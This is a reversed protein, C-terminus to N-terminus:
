DYNKVLQDVVWKQKADLGPIKEAAKKAQQQLTKSQRLVAQKFPEWENKLDSKYQWKSAKQYFNHILIQLVMWYFSKYKKGEEVQTKLEEYYYPLTDINESLLYYKLRDFQLKREAQKLFHSLFLHRELKVLANFNAAMENLLSIQELREEDVVGSEDTSKEALQRTLGETKMDDSLYSWYKIITAADLKFDLPKSEINLQHPYYYHTVEKTDTIQLVEILSNKTLLRVDAESLTYSHKRNQVAEQNLISKFFCTQKISKPANVIMTRDRWNITFEIEPAQRDLECDVQNELENKVIFRFNDPDLNIYEKLLKPEEKKSEYLIAAEINAENNDAHYQNWAPKTFNVSGIVTYVRKSGYFRYIKSHNNRVEKNLENDSWSSWLYNKELYSVFVEREISIESDKLMPLLGKIKSVGKSVMYDFLNTNPSYFPSIVEVESITDQSFINSEIFDKFSSNLSHFYTETVTVYRLFEHIEKEADSFTKSDSLKATNHIIEQIINKTTKNPFQKNAPIEMISFCEHNDCWGSPTLNGSGTLLILKRAKKQDEVLIFIQKPHFNTIKGRKCPTKICNITYGLSPAETNNKAFYDCYVTVPPVINEKLCTRWMIKNFIAEDGFNKGPVFLPMVYNEFFKPDFNFTYFLAAVVKRDGIQEKIKEKLVHHNM